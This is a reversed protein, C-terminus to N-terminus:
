SLFRRRNEIVYHANRTALASITEMPNVGIPTPFLSADAIMLRDADHVLGYGLIRGEFRRTLKVEVPVEVRADHHHGGRPVGPGKIRTCERNLVPLGGRPVADRCEEVPEIM